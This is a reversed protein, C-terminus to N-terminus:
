VGKMGWTCIVLLDIARYRWDAFFLRCILKNAWKAGTFFRNINPESSDSICIQLTEVISQRPIKQAALVICLCVLLFHQFNVRKDSHRHAFSRVLTLLRNNDQTDEVADIMDDQLASTDTAVAALMSRNVELLKELWVWGLPVERLMKGAAVIWEPQKNPDKRPRGARTVSSPLYPNPISPYPRNTPARLNSTSPELSTPRLDLSHDTSSQQTSSSDPLSPVPKVTTPKSLHSSPRVTDRTLDTAITEGRNTSASTSSNPDILDINRASPIPRSSLTNQKSSRTSEVRQPAPLPKRLSLASATSSVKPATQESKSASSTSVLPQTSDAVEESALAAKCRRCKSM